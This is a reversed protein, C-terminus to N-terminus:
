QRRPSYTELPTNDKKAKNKLSGAAKGQKGSKLVDRKTLKTGDKACRRLGVKCGGSQHSPIDARM